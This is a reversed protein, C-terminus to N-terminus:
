MMHKKTLQRMFSESEVELIVKDEIPDMDEPMVHYGQATIDNYASEQSDGIVFAYHRKEFYWYYFDLKDALKPPTVMEFKHLEVM